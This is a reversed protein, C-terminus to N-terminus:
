NVKEGAKYFAKGGGEGGKKKKKLFLYFAEKIPPFEREQFVSRKKRSYM